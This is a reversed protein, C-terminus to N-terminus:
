QSRMHKMMMVLDGPRATDLMPVTTRGEAGAISAIESMTTAEGRVETTATGRGIGTVTETGTIGRTEVTETAAIGTTIETATAIGRATVTGTM